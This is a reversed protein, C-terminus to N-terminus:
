LSAAVAAGLSFGLVPYREFGAERAAADAQEALDALRLPGGDDSTEGSGPLDPMVLTRSQVLGPALAAWSTTADGGTGHILLLPPGEGAVLFNVEAGGAQVKPM